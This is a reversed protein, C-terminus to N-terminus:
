ASLMPGQVRVVLCTIRLMLLALPTLMEILLLMITMIHSRLEKDGDYTHVLRGELDNGVDNSVDAM